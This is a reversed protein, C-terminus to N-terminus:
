GMHTFTIDIILYLYFRYNNDRHETGLEGDIGESGKHEGKFRAWKM